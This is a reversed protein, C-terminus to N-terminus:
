PGTQAPPTPQEASSGTEPPMGVALIRSEESSSADGEIYATTRYETMHNLEYLMKRLAEASEYSAELLEQCLTHDLSQHRRLLEMSALLVTAPQGLHHCAAGLSEVMVRQREAQREAEEARKRDSIDVFSLVVGILEDDANRNGAAVIQVATEGGAPRPVALEATWNQGERVKRFLEELLREDRLCSRLNDQLMAEAGSYEWLRVAASNVYKFRGTLDAIAIGTASNQVANHVARLMEEAQQRLTVDRIFFCFYDRGQVRLPNVAIEAPFLAVSQPSRGSVCHAHILVFRHRELSTAVTRMTAQDAGSIIEVVNRRCLNARSQGLFAEARSNVDVITGVQDTIVAADYVSQLLQQFDADGLPPPAEAGQSGRAAPLADPQGAGPVALLDPPIEIRMTKSLTNPTTM